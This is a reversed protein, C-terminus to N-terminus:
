EKKTTILIIGNQGQEGFQDTAPKGKLIEIRDISSRNLRNLSGYEKMVVDNLMFVPDPRRANESQLAYKDRNEKLVFLVPLTFSVEVGRDNQIGPSWRPMSLVAKIVEEDCGYGLSKLIRPSRTDGNKNVVFSIEVVGQIGNEAAEAPYTISMALFRLMEMSGGPYIPSGAFIKTVLSDGRFNTLHRADSRPQVSYSVLTIPLLSQEERALQIIRRKQDDVSITVRGYSVHSVVLSDNGQVQLLSFYGTKDSFTNINGQNQVRVFASEIPKGQEDYVFGEFTNGQALAPYTLSLLLALLLLAKM